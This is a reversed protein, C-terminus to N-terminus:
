SVSRCAFLFFIRASQTVALVWALVAMGIAMGVSGVAPKHIVNLIRAIHRCSAIHM